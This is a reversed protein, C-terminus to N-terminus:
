RFCYSVSVLTEAKDFYKAASAIMIEQKPSKPKAANVACFRCFSIPMLFAIPAETLSIVAMSDFSKRLSTINDNSIANGTDQHSIFLQSCPKAYRMLM